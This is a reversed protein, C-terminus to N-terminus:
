KVASEEAALQAPGRPLSKPASKTEPVDAAREGALVREQLDRVAELVTTAKNCFTTVHDGAVESHERIASALHRLKEAVENAGRLLEDAVNLIEGSTALGIKDVANITANVLRLPDSQTPTSHINM